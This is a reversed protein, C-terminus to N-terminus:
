HRLQSAVELLASYQVADQNAYLAIHLQKYSYLLLHWRSQRRGDQSDTALISSQYTATNIEGSPLRFTPSSRASGQIPLQGFHPAGGAAIFIRLAAQSNPPFDIADFRLEVQQEADVFGGTPNIIRGAMRLGYPVYGVLPLRLTSGADVVAIWIFVVSLSILVRSIM